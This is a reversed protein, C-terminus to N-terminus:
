HLARNIEREKITLDPTIYVSQQKSVKCLLPASKLLLWKTRENKVPTVLLPRSKNPQTKGLRSVKTVQVNKVNMDKVLDQFVMEDKSGSEKTATEPCEPLVM